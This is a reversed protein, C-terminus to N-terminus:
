MSFAMSPSGNGAGALRQVCPRSPIPLANGTRKMTDNTNALTSRAIKPRTSPAVPVAPMTPTMVQNTVLTANMEIPAPMTANRTASKIPPLPPPHDFRRPPPMHPPPQPPPPKPPPEQPPPPPPQLPPPPPKPPPPAEPRQHGM